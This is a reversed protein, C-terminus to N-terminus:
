ADRLIDLIARAQAVTLSSLRREFHVSTRDGYTSVIIPGGSPHWFKCDAGTPEAKQNYRAALERGLERSREGARQREDAQDKCKDWIRSFEPMFRRSFDAAIAGVSRKLSATCDPSNERVDRPTVITNQDPVWYRPWDGSIVVKEAGRDSWCHLCIGRKVEAGEDNKGPIQFHYYGNMEGHFTGGMERAISTCLVRWAAHQNTEAARKRALYADFDEGTGQTVTEHM